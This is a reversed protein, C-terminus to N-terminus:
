PALLPRLESELDALWAALADNLASVATAARADALAASKRLVFRHVPRRERDVLFLDIALVAVPAGARREDVCLELVDGELWHTPPLHSDDATVARCVGADGLWTRAIEALALGPPVFFEADFDVSVTGDAHRRTIGPGAWAALVHFNPISLVGDAAPENREPRAAALLFRRKDAAPRELSVCATLLLCGLVVHPASLHTATLTTRHLTAKKPPTRKM